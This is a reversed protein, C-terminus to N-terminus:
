AAGPLEDDIPSPKVRQINPGCRPCEIQCTVDLTHSDDFSALELVDDYIPSWSLVIVTARLSRLQCTRPGYQDAVAAKM